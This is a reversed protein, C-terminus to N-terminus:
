LKYQRALEIIEREYEDPSITGSKVRNLLDSKALEYLQWKNMAFVDKRFLIVTM